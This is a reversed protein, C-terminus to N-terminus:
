LDGMAEANNGEEPSRSSSEKLKNLRARLEALESLTRQNDSEKKLSSTVAPEQSPRESASSGVGASPVEISRAIDRLSKAPSVLSRTMTGSSLIGSTLITRKVPAPDESPKIEPAVPAVPASAKVEPEAKVEPAVSPAAVAPAKEAVPAAEAEAAVEAKRPRGRRRKPLEQEQAESSAEAAAAGAPEATESKRPRGRRRKPAEVPAAESTEVSVDVQNEEAMPQREVRPAAAQCPLGPSQVNSDSLLNARSGAWADSPLVIAFRSRSTM